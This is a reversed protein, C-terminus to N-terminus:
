HVSIARRILLSRGLGVQRGRKALMEATRAKRLLEDQERSPVVLTAATRAEEAFKLLREELAPRERNRPSVM